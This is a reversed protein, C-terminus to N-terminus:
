WYCMCFIPNVQKKFIEANKINAQERMKIKQEKILRDNEQIIKYNIHAIDNKRKEMAAFRLEESNEIFMQLRKEEVLKREEEDSKEKIKRAKEILDEQVVKPNEPEEEEIFLHENAKMGCEVMRKIQNYLCKKDSMDIMEKHQAERLISKFDNENQIRFRETRMREIDRLRVKCDNGPQKALFGYTYPQPGRFPTSISIGAKSPPVPKM